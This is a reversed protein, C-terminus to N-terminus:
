VAYSRYIIGRLPITFSLESALARPIREAEDV